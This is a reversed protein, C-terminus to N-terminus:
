SPHGSAPSDRIAERVIGALSLGILLFVANELLFRITRWNLREAIRAEASQISPSRYGLLLGALVVALVGSGHLLQAPIFAIYPTVLSLSTDLVASNLRKRIEAIVAGVLLGVGAGVGVALLLDLAVTGPNVTSVIATISASLAVLAVADNLLSEGELITVTRRPLRLRGAIATVAVADTPAVVAGFALAAALGVGPLVLWTTLGVVIFTFAVLGVSLLLISDGRAKIDIYSSRIGAAFLLPPLVGYLVLDPELDINPIGPVFSVIAGIAVLALPASLGFRGAFGTVTVTVIVFAVIWIIVGVSDMRRNQRWEAVPCRFTRIAGADARGPGTPTRPTPGFYERIGRRVAHWIIAYQIWIALAILGATVVLYIVLAVIGVSLIASLDIGSPNQASDM